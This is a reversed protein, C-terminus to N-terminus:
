KILGRNNPMQSTELRVKSYFLAAVFVKDTLVKILTASDFFTHRQLKVMYQRTYLNYWKICRGATHSGSEEEVGETEVNNSVTKLSIM